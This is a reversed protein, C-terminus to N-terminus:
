RAVKNSQVQHGPKLLDLVTKVPNFTDHPVEVFITNWHAMAGNWLGPLELAKIPTGQVSKETIFGQEPAVYDKLNYKEGKYNRVGCVLDVPNFHTVQEMIAATTANNLDMQASEVIQLSVNGQNDEVWYPGGGPEGENLVMGCVRIPRDFFQYLSEADKFVLEKHFHSSALRQGLQALKDSFGENDLREMLQFVEQQITLLLGGLAKKYTTVIDLKNEPVTNDINKIFILDTDIKNLNQILAGHGGPRFFLKGEEDRYPQNKLDVAITDTSSGQYTFTTSFTVGFKKLKKQVEYNEVEFLKRHNQGITFHLSAEGDTCGYNIAERFHEEYASATRDSYHHFPILGKPLDGYSLDEMLFKIFYYKKEDESVLPYNPHIAIFEALVSEFFPLDEINKFLPILNNIDSGELFKFLDGKEPRYSALFHHLDRFMRTAAGSAPVFKVKKARSSEFTTIYDQLDKESLSQIGNDLTAPAKISICPIGQKFTELQQLVQEESLGHEKLQQIDKKSFVTKKM